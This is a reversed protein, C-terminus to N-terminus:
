RDARLLMFPPITTPIGTPQFPCLNSLLGLDNSHDIHEVGQHRDSGIPLVDSGVLRKAFEEHM